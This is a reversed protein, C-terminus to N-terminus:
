GLGIVNSYLAVRRRRRRRMMITAVLFPIISADNTTQRHDDESFQVIWFNGLNKKEVKAGNEGFVVPFTVGITPCHM